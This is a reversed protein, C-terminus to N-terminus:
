IKESEEKNESEDSDNQIEAAVPEVEITKRRKKKSKNRKNEITLAVEGSLYMKLIGLLVLVTSSIIIIPFIM